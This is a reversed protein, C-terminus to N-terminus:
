IEITSYVVTRTQTIQEDQRSVSTVTLYNVGKVLQLETSFQGSQDAIVLESNKEGYAFVANGPNTIGSVTIAQFNVLTYPQPQALNLKITQNNKDVKEVEEPENNTTSTPVPSLSQQKQKVAQNATWVGYTVILGLIFGTVIAVILERSPFKM